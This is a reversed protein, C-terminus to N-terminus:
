SFSPPAARAPEPAPAPAPVFSAFRAELEAHPGADAAVWRRLRPDTLRDKAKREFIRDLYLRRLSPQELIEDAPTAGEVTVSVSSLPWERAWSRLVDTAADGPARQEALRLLDPLFRFVLDVSYDTAPGRPVPCPEALVKRVLVEGPERDVSMQCTRYFVGAAWLAAREDYAPATFAVEARVREDWERLVPGVDPPMAENTEVYPM